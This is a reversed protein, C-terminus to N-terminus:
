INAGDATVRVGSIQTIFIALGIASLADGKLAFFCFGSPKSYIFGNKFWALCLVTLVITVAAAGAFLLASAVKFLIEKMSMGDYYKMRILDAEDPRLEKMAREVDARLEALAIQRDATSTAVRGRSKEKRYRSVALNRAIAALYVPLSSKQPDYKDRQFYFISFTENVCEKIDEPNQLHRSVISWILGTYREMLLTLGTQPSRNIRDLIQQDTFPHAHM